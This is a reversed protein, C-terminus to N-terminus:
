PCTACQRTGLPVRPKRARRVRTQAAVPASQELLATWERGFREPGYEREALARAEAVRRATGDPDALDAELARALQAGTPAAPVGRVLEPHEEAVGVPTAIVPVSAAWAELVAIACSEGLSPLLFWDFAALSPGPRDVPGAFVVRDGLGRAAAQAKLSREEIGWGVFAGRVRPQAEVLDLLRGPDKEPVLRGLFGVVIEGPRVGWARRLPERTGDPTVRAPEYCNRIVVARGRQAEAIPPLAAASVGVLVDALEARAFVRETWPCSTGHSHSVLIVSCPRPRPPLRQDEAAIGWSVVVDCERYLRDVHARGGGFPARRGLEQVIRGNVEHAYAVAVGRWDICTKDCHDLLSLMWQEAGGSHACAGVIGVRIRAPDPAAGGSPRAPSPWGALSSAFKSRRVLAAGQHGEACVCVPYPHPCDCTRTTM